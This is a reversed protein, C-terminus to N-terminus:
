LIEDLDCAVNKEVYKFEEYKLFPKHKVYLKAEKETVKDAVVKNNEDLILYVM